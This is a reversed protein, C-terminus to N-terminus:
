SFAGGGGGIIACGIFIAPAPAPFTPLARGGGPSHDEPLACHQDQTTKDFVDVSM